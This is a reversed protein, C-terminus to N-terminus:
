DKLISLVIIHVPYNSASEPMTTMRIRTDSRPPVTRKELVETRSGTLVGTERLVGDILFFGRMVGGSARAVIEVRGEQATPNTIDIDISHEVGFDGSLYTGAANTSGEKGLPFFTWSGGVEHTLPEHKGAGFTFATMKPSAYEGSSLPEIWEHADRDYASEAQVELYLPSPGALPVIRALGSVITDPACAVRVFDSASRPPVRLVYGSGTRRQDIFRRTATHGVGLEDKGPGAEAVVVHASAPQGTPNAIRAVFMIKRGTSNVHHYLLRCPRDIELPERMLTGETRIRE